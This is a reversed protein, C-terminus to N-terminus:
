GSRILGPYLGHHTVVDVGTDGTAKRLGHAM